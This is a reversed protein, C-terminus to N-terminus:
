TTVLIRLITVLGVFRVFGLWGVWGDWAAAIGSPFFAPKSLRFTLCYSNVFELPSFIIM